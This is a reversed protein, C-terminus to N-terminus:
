NLVLMVSRIFIATLPTRRITKVLPTRETDLSALCSAPPSLNELASGPKM